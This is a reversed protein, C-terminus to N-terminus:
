ADAGVDDTTDVQLLPHAARYDRLEKLARAKALVRALEGELRVARDRTKELQADTDALEGAAIQKPTRRTM